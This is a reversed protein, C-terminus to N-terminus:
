NKPHVSVVVTTGDEESISLIVEETDNAASLMSSDTINMSMEITWGSDALEQKYFDAAEKVTKSTKYTVMLNTGDQEDSVTSSYVIEADSLLPVSDPWNKPITAHEGTTIDIDGHEGQIRMSGDRELDVDYEGNLANEAIMEGMNEPTLLTKLTVLAIVIVAGIIVWKKISPKKTQEESNNPTSTSSDDM